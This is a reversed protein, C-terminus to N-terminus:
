RACAVQRAVAAYFGYLPNIHEIPFDSGNIILGNQQLLKKYANVMGPPGSLYWTREAFDPRDIELTLEYHAFASIAKWGISLLLVALFSIASAIAFQGYFQFRREANHRQRLREIRPTPPTILPETM